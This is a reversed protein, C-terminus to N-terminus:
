DYWRSGPLRIPERGRDSYKTEDQRYDAQYDDDLRIPSSYSDRRSEPISQSPTTQSKNEKPLNSNNDTPAINPKEPMKRTQRSVFIDGQQKREEQPTESATKENTNQWPPKINIPTEKQQKKKTDTQDITQKDPFQKFQEKDLNGGGIKNESEPYTPENTEQEAEKLSLKPIHGRAANDIQESSFSINAGENEVVYNEDDKSLDIKSTGTQKTSIDDHEGFVDNHGPLLKDNSDNKGHGLNEMHFRVYEAEDLTDCKKPIGVENQVQKRNTRSPESSEDQLTNQENEEDSEEDSNRNKTKNYLSAAKSSIGKVVNGATNGTAGGATVLWDEGKNYVTAPSTGPAFSLLSMCANFFKKRFLIAATLIVGVIFGATGIKSEQAAFASLKFALMIAFGLYFGYIVKTSLFGLLAKLGKVLVARGSEGAIGVILVVPMLILMVMVMFQAIFIPLGVLGGM